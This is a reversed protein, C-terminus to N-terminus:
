ANTTILYGKASNSIASISSVIGLSFETHPKQIRDQLQGAPIETFFAFLIEQFNAYGRVVLKVDMDVRSGYLEWYRLVCMGSLVCRERGFMYDCIQTVRCAISVEWGM